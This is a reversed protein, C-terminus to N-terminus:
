SKPHLVASSSHGLTEEECHQILASLPAQTWKRKRSLKSKHKRVPLARLDDKKVHNRRQMWRAGDERRWGTDERRRWRADERRRRWGADERRRRWRADERRRWRADEGGGGGDLMREGGGDLIREGGGGGGDLMREGGGDLMREGGGDLMREGGGDLMREGGGDLMREGGGDLMREGGGDLIREGGGGGGDLMREGGGDLMREGGGDLMREGGGGDLMREGGGDRFSDYRLVHRIFLKAPCDLKKGNQVHFRKKTYVHEASRKEKEKKQRAKGHQCALVIRKKVCLPTDENFDEVQWLHREKTGDKIHESRITQVRCVAKSARSPGKSSSQM